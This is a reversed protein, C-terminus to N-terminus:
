KWRWWHGCYPCEWKVTRDRAPDFRGWVCSGERSPAGDETRPPLYLDAHCSPCEVPCMEAITERSV